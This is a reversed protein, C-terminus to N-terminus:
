LGPDPRLVEAVTIYDGRWGEGGGGRAQHYQLKLEVGVSTEQINHGKSLADWPYQTRSRIM